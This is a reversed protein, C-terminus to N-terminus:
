CSVYFGNKFGILKKNTKAMIAFKHCVQLIKGRYTSKGSQM